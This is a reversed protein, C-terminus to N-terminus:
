QGAVKETGARGGAAARPNGAHAARHQTAQELLRAHLADRQEPTNINDFMEPRDGFAARVTNHQEYWTDIKRGGGHVFAQMSALLERRLLVFVPQIREGDDAVALEADRECLAKKLRSVLDVAVLPSDCPVCALFPTQCSSLGAIMGALPGAFDDNMDTLVRCGTLEHYREVNRNASVMVTACQEAMATTVWQVMARGGVEILGKDDGGMRRARGGALVIATVDANNM